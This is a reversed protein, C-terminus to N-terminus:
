LLEDKVCNKLALPVQSEPVQVTTAGSESRKTIRYVFEDPLPAVKDTKAFLAEVRLQDEAGLDSVNCTGRSRIRAGPGGFGAIGGLREVELKDM